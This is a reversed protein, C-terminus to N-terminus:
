RMHDAFIDKVGFGLLKLRKARGKFLGSVLNPLLRVIAFVRDLSKVSRCLASDSHGVGFIPRQDFDPQLITGLSRNTLELRVRFLNAESFRFALASVGVHAM